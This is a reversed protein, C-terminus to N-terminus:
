GGGPAHRATHAEVRHRHKRRLHARGAEQVERQVTHLAARYGEQLTTAFERVEQGGVRLKWVWEVDPAIRYIFCQGKGCKVAVGANDYPVCGYAFVACVIVGFDTKQEVRVRVRVHMVQSASSGSCPARLCRLHGNHLARLLLRAETNPDRKM